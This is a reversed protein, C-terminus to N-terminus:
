LIEGIESLVKCIYNGFDLEYFDIFLRICCWEYSVYFVEKKM